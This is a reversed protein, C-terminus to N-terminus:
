SQDSEPSVKTAEVRKQQEASPSKGEDSSSDAAEAAQQEQQAQREAKAAEVQDIVGVSTSGGQGGSENSARASDPRQPAGVPSVTELAERAEEDTIVINEDVVLNELNPDEEAVKKLAETEPDAPVYDVPVVNGFEPDGPLIHKDYKVAVVNGQDDVQIGKENKAFGM